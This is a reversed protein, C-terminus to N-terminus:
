KRGARKAAVRRWEKGDYFFKVPSKPPALKKYNDYGFAQYLSGKGRLTVYYINNKYEATAGEIRNNTVWVQGSMGLKDIVPIDGLPKFNNDAYEYAYHGALSGDAASLSVIALVKNQGYFFVPARLLSDNENEAKSVESVAGGQERLALFVNIFESDESLKDKRVTGLVFYLNDAVPAKYIDIGMAVPKYQGTFYGILAQETAPSIAKEINVYWTDEGSKKEVNRMQPEYRRLTQAQSHAAAKVSPSTQAATLAASLFFMSLLVTQMKKM